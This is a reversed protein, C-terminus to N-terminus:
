GERRLGKGTSLTPECRCGDVPGWSPCRSVWADVHETWTPPKSGKVPVANGSGVEVFRDFGQHGCPVNASDTYDTVRVGCTTCANYPNAFMTGEKTAATTRTPDPM